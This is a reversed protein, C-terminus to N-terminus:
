DTENLTDHWESEKFGVLIFDDSVLIPRKILMGNSALLKLLEEDTSEAIKEKLGLERYLRGSTNFFKKIPYGSREYWNKLEEYTPTDEVIHKTDVDIDNIHLWNKAKKCTGCKPYHVFLLKM